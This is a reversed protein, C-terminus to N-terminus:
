IWVIDDDHGVCDEHEKGSLLAHGDFLEFIMVFVLVYREYHLRQFVDGGYAMCAVIELPVFGDVVVADGLDLKAVFLVKTLEVMCNPIRRSLRPDLRVLLSKPILALEAEKRNLARLTCFQLPREPDFVM